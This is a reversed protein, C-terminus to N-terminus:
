APLGLDQPTAVGVARSAGRTPAAALAARRAEPGVPPGTETGSRMFRVAELAAAPVPRALLFGQAEDCGLNRLFSLQDATEVGEAVTELGLSRAMAVVAQIIAVDNADHPLGSVFSRDIKLSRVTFRKLYALASHGTGFDDIAIRVGLAALQEMTHHARQPDVMVTSETIEVELASAPLDWRSLAQQIEAVLQDSNFHHASLNIACHPVQFGADRWARMQRCAAELVWRGIPLILSRREALPIFDGPPILGRTPHQWRVLAEVGALGQDSNLRYKPQYHLVLEGRAVAERLDTELGAVESAQQALASTYFNLNGPGQAKAVYMAADANRLLM